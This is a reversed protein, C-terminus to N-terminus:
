ASKAVPSAGASADSGADSIRFSPLGRRRIMFEAVVLNPLWCLFPVAAYGNAWLSDFTADESAFPVQAYLLVATWLRLMIAAYTLAFNRIMWAQHGRIDRSRVARYAKWATYLWLVGLTGFGFFGVFGASNFPAMVLSAVASVAVSVLYSRGIWRHAARFRERFGAWFQLPGLLLAIAAFVIHVYLAAQITPPQEVYHPALGTQGDALTRLSDTLYPVAAFAVIGLSSFAVWAWSLRRM